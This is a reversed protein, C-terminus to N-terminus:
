SGGLCYKCGYGRVTLGYYESQLVFRGCSYCQVYGAPATGVVTIPQWQSISPNSLPTTGLSAPSLFLSSKESVKVGDNVNVMYTLPLTIKREKELELDKKTVKKPDISEIFPALSPFLSIKKGNRESWEKELFPHLENKGKDSHTWDGDHAIIVMDEDTCKQMLLEWVIEDGLPDQNKGPPNGKMKRLLAADLVERDETISDAAAILKDIHDKFLKELSDLSERRVKEISVNYKDLLDKAEKYTDGQEVGAPVEPLSLKLVDNKAFRGYDMPIGRYIEEQTIKPFVLKFQDNGLFDEFTELVKISVGKGKLYDMYVGSDVFVRM